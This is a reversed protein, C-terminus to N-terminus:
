SAKTETNRTTKTTKKPAMKTATRHRVLTPNKRPCKKANIPKDANNTKIQFHKQLRGTSPRKLVLLSPLGPIQSAPIRSFVDFCPILSKLTTFFWRVLLQFFSSAGGNPRKQPDLIRVRPSLTNQVMKAPRPTPNSKSLAKLRKAPIQNSRQFSKLFGPAWFNWGSIIKPSFSASRM